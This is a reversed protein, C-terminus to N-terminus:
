DNVSIYKTNSFKKKTEDPLEGDSIFYDVKSLDCQVIKSHRGLKDSGCLYVHAASGALMANNHLFYGEPKITIVGDNDIGDTSFFMIDAKFSSFASATLMGSATGPLETIKGGACYVEIGKEALHSALLLNNTVVTIDKKGELFHGIYQVTTSGDLFVLDGDKILSAAAKGMKLKESKMSHQRFIFPTESEKNLEVGGHSRKVLGQKELLSLDRRVTAPSFHLQEVLYDVTTYHVLKLIRIIEDHREKPFM